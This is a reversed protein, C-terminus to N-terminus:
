RAGKEGAPEGGVVPFLLADRRRRATAVDRTRLSRRVRLREGSPRRATLCLCWTGHNNWLHHNANGGRDDRYSLVEDRGEIRYHITNPM